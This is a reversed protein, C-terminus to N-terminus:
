SKAKSPAAKATVAKPAAAKAPTSKTPTGGKPPEPPTDVKPTKKFSSMINGLLNVEVGQRRMIIYQQTVSLTNNWAWYIVLGAPFTGLMFTFIVPMWNFIVQQAPDAPAPNLRMQVWMTVGMILPWIGIMLMHPPTWPILGFLNFLTTPDPASLDQIWGFFPAHRMEITIFIVKYLSFFVPIQILVPWCGALPNIKEKKYLEMLAQQQKVKDDAFRERLAAMEPQVKKMASMSKYSKNALPFFVAKVIVTVLLIAVGFNGFFKFFFDMLYFLPKTFFWFMGWDILLDFRDIKLDDRYGDIISVQKAGAFLLSETSGTAGAAIDIPTGKFDAQYLPTAGDVHSFTADFPKTGRPVVATAWYKDTVGLWGTAVNSFSQPPEGRLKKYTLEQLHQDGMWGILGEHLIYYGSVHPEGLRTVRGYPSLAVPKGTANTVEDKVTFMYSPDISITRKFTLGAGNDWTLVVPKTDTLKAGEPATWLTQPGPVPTGDAPPVWGFEAFYGDPGAAPSLLIITPSNKDVTERYGNLRLDDVRGGQLNISGSVSPTEVAVRPTSALAAERSLSAAAAPTAPASGSSGSTGTAAGPATATTGAAPTTQSIAAAEKRSQEMRPGAIFYQWGFVVAVSLIVAIILNRNDTLM